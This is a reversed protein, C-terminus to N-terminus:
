SFASLCSDRAGTTKIVNPRCTHTWDYAHGSTFDSCLPVLLGPFPNRILGNNKNSDYQHSSISWTYTSQYNSKKQSLFNNCQTYSGLLVEGPYVYKWYLIGQRGHFIDSSDRTNEEYFSSGKLSHSHLFICAVLPTNWSIVVFDQM